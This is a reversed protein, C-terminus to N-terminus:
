SIKSLSEGNETRFAGHNWLNRKKMEPHL